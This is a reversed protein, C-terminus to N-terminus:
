TKNRNLHRINAHPMMQPQQQVNRVNQSLNEYSAAHLPMMEHAQEGQKTGVSINRGTQSAHEDKQRITNNFQECQHRATLVTRVFSEKNDMMRQEALLNAMNLHLKSPSAKANKM